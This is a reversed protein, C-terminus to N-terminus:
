SFHGLLRGFGDGLSKIRQRLQRRERSTLGLIISNVYNLEEIVNELIGPSDDECYPIGRDHDDEASVIVRRVLERPAGTRDVVVRELLDTLNVRKRAVAKTVLKADEVPVGLIAVNEGLSTCELGDKARRILDVSELDDIVELGTLAQQVVATAYTSAETKVATRIFKVIHKCLRHRKAGQYKWAECTCSIGEAARLLVHHWLDRSQSHVLGEIKNPRTSVIRVSKDPIKEARERAIKTSRLALLTDVSAESEIYGKGTLKAATKNSHAWFTRDLISFPDAKNGRSTCLEALILDQMNESEDLMSDVEGARPAIDGKPDTIFYRNIVRTKETESDLVVVGFAENDLNRRGASQLIKDLQWESLMTLGQTLPETEKEQMFVGLLFVVTARLGSAIAFKSPMVLVPLLRDEWAKSIARRQIRSVGQHFFAIGRSITRGLNKTMRCNKYHDTIEESLERLEERHGLTLPLELRVGNSKGVGALGLALHNAMDRNPTMIMIQGGRRHVFQTLDKLSENMNEFVKVSFIRKVDAKEDVIPTADLWTVLEVLDEVPPCIAIHQLDAGRGMITVLIAELRAGLEPEGILDLRETLVCQIDNLIEPHTRLAINLATYTAVIVRGNIEKSDLASRRRALMTAEIGLRRCHKSISKFRKEAQHPNPTLVIAKARFNSAVRHLLGVEAIKYAEDYDYTVLIQSNGISLGKRVSARQFDTLSAWGERRLIELLRPSIQAYELERLTSM